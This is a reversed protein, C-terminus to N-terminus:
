MRINYHIPDNNILSEDECKYITIYMRVLGAYYLLAVIGYDNSHIHLIVIYNTNYYMTYYQLM